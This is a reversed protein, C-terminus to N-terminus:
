VPLPRSRFRFYFEMMASTQIEFVSITIDWGGISIDRRCKVQQYVKVKQLCHCWCIRFRFYYKAIPPRWRSFHIHCWIEVTPPGIRIINPTTICFLMCIATSYGFDFGSISNSYPPCKNKKWFPFLEIEATLQSIDVFNPKSISKSM